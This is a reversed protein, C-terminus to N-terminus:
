DDGPLDNQCTQTLNWRWIPVAFAGGQSAGLQGDTRPYAEPAHKAALRPLSHCRRKVWPLMSAM